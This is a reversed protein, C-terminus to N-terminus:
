KEFNWATKTGYGSLEPEYSKLAAYLPHMGKGNVDIRPVCM